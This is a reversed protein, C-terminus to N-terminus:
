GLGYMENILDQRISRGREIMEELTIGKDKLTAGIAGLAEQVVVEARRIEIGSETQVFTVMDGKKLGLAARVAQPITVQGKEQVRAM